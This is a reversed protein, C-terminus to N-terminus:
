ARRNSIICRQSVSTACGQKWYMTVVVVAGGLAMRSPGSRTNFILEVGFSSRRKLISRHSDPRAREFFSLASRKRLQEPRRPCRQRALQFTENSGTRGAPRVMRRKGTERRRASQKGRVPWRGPRRDQRRARGVAAPKKDFEEIEPRVRIGRANRRAVRCPDERGRESEIRSPRLLRDPGHTRFLGGSRFDSVGAARDRNDRQALEGKRSDKACRSRPPDIADRRATRM